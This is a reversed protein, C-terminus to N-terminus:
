KLDLSNMNEYFLLNFLSIHKVTYRAKYFIKIERAISDYNKKAIFKIFDEPFDCNMNRISKQHFSLFLLVFYTKCFLVYKLFLAPFYSKKKQCIQLISSFQIFKEIFACDSKM